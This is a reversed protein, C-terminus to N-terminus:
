IFIVKSYGRLRFRLVYTVLRLDNLLQASDANLLWDITNIAFIINKKAPKAKTFVNGSMIGLRTSICKGVM